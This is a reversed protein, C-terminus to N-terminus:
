SVPTRTLLGLTNGANDTLTATRTGGGVDDPGATLTAGAACATTIASELDDVAVYAVPSPATADDGNPGLAIEFGAVNFGVYYPTDTHPETGLVAAHVTKAADLDSVKYVISYLTNM